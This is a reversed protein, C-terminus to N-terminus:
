TMRQSLSEISRFRNLRRRLYECMELKQEDAWEAILTLEEFTSLRNRLGLAQVIQRQSPDVQITLMPNRTLLGRNEMSWISTEGNLCRKHYGAVCHKMRDGEAFLRKATTIQQIAWVRHGWASCGVDVKRFDGIAVPRWSEDPFHCKFAVAAKRRRRSVTVLLPKSQQPGNRARGLAQSVSFHDPSTLFWKQSLSNFKLPLGAGRVSNGSALHLFLRQDRKIDSEIDAFWCRYLFKPVPKKVLLHDILSTMALRFSPEESTWLEPQEKWRRSVSALRALANLCVTVNQGFAPGYNCSPKLLNSEARVAIVLRQFARRAVQNGRLSDITEHIAADVIRKRQVHSSAGIRLRPESLLRNQSSSKSPYREGCRMDTNHAM